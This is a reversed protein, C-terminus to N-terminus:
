EPIQVLIALYSNKQSEDPSDQGGAGGAGGGRSGGIILSSEDAFQVTDM